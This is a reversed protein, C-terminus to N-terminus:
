YVFSDYYVKRNYFTRRISVQFFMLRVLTKGENKCESTPDTHRVSFAMAIQTQESPVFTKRNIRNVTKKQRYESKKNHVFFSSFYFFISLVIHLRQLAMFYNVKLIVLFALDKDDNRKVISIAKFNYETRKKNSWYFLKNIIILMFAYICM